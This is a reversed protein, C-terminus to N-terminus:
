LDDLSITVKNFVLERLRSGSRLILKNIKGSNNKQFEVSSAIPREPRFLLLSKMQLSMDGHKENRLFLQGNQSEIEILM